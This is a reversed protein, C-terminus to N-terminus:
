KIFILTEKTNEISEFVVVRNEISTIDVFEKHNPPNSHKCSMKLTYCM